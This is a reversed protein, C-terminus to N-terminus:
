RTVAQFYYLLAFGDISCHIEGDLILKLIEERTFFRFESVGESVNLRTSSTDNAVCSYIHMREKTVSPFPYFSTLYKWDAGTLGTEEELERQATKLTVEGEEMRGGPIEWGSLQTLPRAIRILGIHNGKRVIVSVADPKEMFYYDHVKADEEAFQQHFVNFRPTSLLIKKESVNKM